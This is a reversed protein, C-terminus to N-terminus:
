SRVSRCPVCENIGGADVIYRTDDSPSTPPVTQDDAAVGLQTVVDLIRLAENHTVHKQAQSPQIFPMSLSSSIDAMHIGMLFTQVTQM